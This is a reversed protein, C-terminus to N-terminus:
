KNQIKWMLKELVEPADTASLIEEESEERYDYYKEYIV